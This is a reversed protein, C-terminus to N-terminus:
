AASLEEQWGFQSYARAGQIHGMAQRVYPLTNKPPFDIPHWELSSHKHPEALYPSGQWRTAEFFCGMWENGETLCHIVHRLRLDDPVITIGVEEFAERAAAQRLPEGGEVAGAPLSYFGDMWGTHSRKLWLIDEECRVIVFVSTSHKFRDRKVQLM